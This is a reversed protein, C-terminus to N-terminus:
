AVCWSVARVVCMTGDLEKMGARLEEMGGRMQILDRLGM